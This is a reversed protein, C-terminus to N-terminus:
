RVSRGHKTSDGPSIRRLLPTCSLGRGKSVEGSTTGAGRHFTNLERTHKVNAKLETTAPGAGHGVRGRQPAAPLVAEVLLLLSHCTTQQLARWKWARCGQWRGPLRPHLGRWGCTSLPGGHFYWISPGVAPPKPHWLGLDLHSATGPCSNARIKSM